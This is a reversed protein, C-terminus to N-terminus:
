YVHAYVDYSAYAPLDYTEISFAKASGKAPKAVYANRGFVIRGKADRLVLTVSIDDAYLGKGNDDDRECVVEGSFTTGGLDIKRAKAGRVTFSEAGGTDLLDDASPTEMTFEVSAPKEGDGAQGAFYATESAYVIAFVQTHSFMVSGDASKGTVTVQPFQVAHTTDTNRLALAYEVYGNPASWGSETLELPNNQLAEEVDNSGASSSDSSGSSSDGGNKDPIKGTSTQTDPSSQALGGGLNGHLLVYGTIGGAVILVMVLVAAIWMVWRTHKRQTASGDVADPAEGSGHAGTSGANASYLLRRLAAADQPRASPEFACAQQVIARIRSDVVDADALLREYHNKDSPQVGTVLFGLVCGIAYVDSRADTSAFGYQEPAAFGWTGLTTTDHSRPMGNAGDTGNHERAIGFDILHVGDAAMIINAPTIDRHVIDCRHLEDVAECLQAVIRIAADASLRGREAMYQELTVGQVYDYIVVFWDPLEYTAEIQPLRPSRCEAITSWLRRRAFQLPIKKRVFPGTGDLTVLETIGYQGNALVQEVHYADDLMMAHMTQMDDM